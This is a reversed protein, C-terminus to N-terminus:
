DNIKVPNAIVKKDKLEIEIEQNLKIQDASKIIKNGQRIISYGKKLINEPNLFKLKTESLLIFQNYHNFINKVNLKLTNHSQNISIKNEILVKKSSTTLVSKQNVLKFQADKLIKKSATALLFESKRIKTYELFTFDRVNNKLQNGLRDINNSQSELQYKIHQIINEFTNTVEYDFSMVREILFTAVDTPTIFDQYAVLDAVSKNTTHGIGTLVPIPVKAIARTLSLDNFCEMFAGGGRVIVICDVPRTERLNYIEIIRTRIENAALEGALKAEYFSVYFDYGYPNSRLKNLFDEAGKSDRASIVAIRQPLSAFDLQKNKDFVDESKLQNITNRKSREAEGITYNSDIEVIELGIGYKKNFNVSAKCLIKLDKALPIGTEKFFHNRINEFNKTWIYAKVQALNEASNPDKEILEIRAYGKPAVTFSSIEAKVWFVNKNFTKNVTQEILDMLELLSYHPSAIIPDVQV